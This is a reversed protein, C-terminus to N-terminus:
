SITYAFMYRVHVYLISPFTVNDAADLASVPVVIVLAVAMAVRVAMHDQFCVCVCVDCLYISYIYLLPCPLLIHIQYVYM